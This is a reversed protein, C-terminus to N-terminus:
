QEARHAVRALLERCCADFHEPWMQRSGPAAARLRNAIIELDAQKYRGSLRDAVFADLLGLADKGLAWLDADAMDAQADIVALTAKRLARAEATYGNVALRSMILWVPDLQEPIATGGRKRVEVLFTALKM